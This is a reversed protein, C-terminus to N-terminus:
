PRAGAGIALAIGLFALMGAFFWVLRRPQRVPRVGSVVLSADFEPM